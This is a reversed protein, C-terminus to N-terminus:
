GPGAAQRAVGGQTRGVASFRPPPREKPAPAVASGGQPPNKPPSAQSPQYGKRLPQYGEQLRKAM